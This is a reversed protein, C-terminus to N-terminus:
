PWGVGFQEALTRLWRGVRKRNTGMDGYGLRSASRVHLLRAGVDVRAEIDDVFRFLRTRDTAVLRLPERREIRARPDARVVAEFADLAREPAMEAPLALPAIHHELDDSDAESSVCNPSKPCPPLKTEM